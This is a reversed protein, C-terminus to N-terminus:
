LREIRYIHTKSRAYIAKGSVAPSAMFGDDLKNRSILEYEKGPNIVYCDGM